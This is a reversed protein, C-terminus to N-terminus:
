KGELFGVKTCGIRFDAVHKLLKSVKYNGIDVGPHLLVSLDYKGKLENVMFGYRTEFDQKDYTLIKNINPNGTLVDKMSPRLMVDVSADPFKQKLARITPTIAIVDGIYLLEIVLISKIEKPLDKKGKFVQITKFLAYDSYWAFARLLNAIKKTLTEM